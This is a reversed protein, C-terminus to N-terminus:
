FYFPLKANTELMPKDHNSTLECRWQSQTIFHSSMQNIMHKRVMNEKTDSYFGINNCSDEQISHQSSVYWLSIKQRIPGKQISKRYPNQSLCHALSCSFPTDIPEGKSEITEHVLTYEDTSRSQDVNQGTLNQILIKFQFNLWWGHLYLNLYFPM